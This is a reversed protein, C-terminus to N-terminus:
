SHVPALGVFVRGRLTLESKASGAPFVFDHTHGDVVLVLGKEQGSAHVV